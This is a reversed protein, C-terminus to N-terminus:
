SAARGDSLPWEFALAGICPPPLDGTTALNGPLNKTAAVIELVREEFVCLKTSQMCTFTGCRMFARPQQRPDVQLRCHRLASAECICAQV